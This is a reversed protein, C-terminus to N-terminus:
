DPGVAWTGVGLGYVTLTGSGSVGGGDITFTGSISITGNADSGSASVGGEPSVTGTLTLLVTDSDGDYVTAILSGTSSCKLVLSGGAAMEVSYRGYHTGAFPNEAITTTTPARTTTTPKSHTIRRTTTTSLETTTTMSTIAPAAESTTTGASVTTEDDSGGCGGLALVMSVVLAVTLTLLPVRVFTRRMEKVEV